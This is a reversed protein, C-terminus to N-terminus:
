SDREGVKEQQVELIVQRVNELCCFGQPNNVQCGCRRAKIHAAIEALIAQPTTSGQLEQRIRRRTWAFCYCVPVDEGSEKQFVPVKLDDVGFSQGQESFYVVPCIPDRCFAYNSDADLQALARPFLLSKLTILQVPIGQEGSRPCLPQWANASFPALPERTM